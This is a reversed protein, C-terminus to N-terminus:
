EAGYPAHAKAVAAMLTSKMDAYVPFGYRSALAKLYGMKVADPPAGFVIKGSAALMGFEVNTVLAPMRTLERPVWFVAVTAQALAEWEWRVQDDYDFKAQGDRDEPIFVKGDFGSEELLALAEPRWSPTEKDRPTPGALFISKDLPERAYVKIM